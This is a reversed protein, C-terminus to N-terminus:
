IVSETSAGAGTFAVIKRSEAIWQKLTELNEM